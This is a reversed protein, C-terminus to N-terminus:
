AGAGFVAQGRATAATGDFQLYSVASLTDGRFQPDVGGGFNPFNGLVSFNNLTATPDFVVQSDIITKTLGGTAPNFVLDQLSTRRLLQPNFDSYVVAQNGGSAQTVLIQAQFQQYIDTPYPFSVSVGLRSPRAITASALDPNVVPNGNRDVGPS